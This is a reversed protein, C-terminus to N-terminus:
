KNEGASLGAGFLEDLIEDIDHHGHNNTNYLAYLASEVQERTLVRAGPPVKRYEWKFNPEWEHAENILVNVLYQKM